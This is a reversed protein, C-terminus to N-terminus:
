SGERIKMGNFAGTPFLETSYPMPLVCTQKIEIHPWDDILDPIGAAENLDRYFESHESSHNLFSWTDDAAATAIIKNVAMGPMMLPFQFTVTVAAVRSDEGNEKVEVKIRKIIADNADRSEGSGGIKGWGPIIVENKNWRLRKHDDALNIWALAIEAANQAAAQKEPKPVVMIARTACYAAYATMQKAIWIHAFQIIGFILLFLLPLVLVTEMLISGRRTRREAMKSTM